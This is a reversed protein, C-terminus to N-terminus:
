ADLGNRADAQAVIRRVAADDVPGGLCKLSRLGRAVDQAWTIGAALRSALALTHGFPTLAFRAAPTLTTTIM